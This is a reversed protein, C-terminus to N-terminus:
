IGGLYFKWPPIQPSFSRNTLFSYKQNREFLRKFVCWIIQMLKKVPCDQDRDVINIFSGRWQSRLKQRTTATIRDSKQTLKFPLFKIWNDLLSILEKVDKWINPANEFNKRFYRKSGTTRGDFGRQRRIEVSPLVRPPLTIKSPASIWRTRQKRSGILISGFIM